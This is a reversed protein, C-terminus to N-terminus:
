AIRRNAAGLLVAAEDVAIGAVTGPVEGWERRLNRVPAEFAEDLAKEWAAEAGVPGVYVIEDLRAEMRQTVFRETLRLDRKVLELDGSEGGSDVKHRHLM